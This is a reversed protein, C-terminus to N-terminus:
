IKIYKQLLTDDDNERGREKFFFFFFLGFWGVAVFCLFFDFSPIYFESKISYM